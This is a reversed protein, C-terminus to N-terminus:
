GRDLDVRGDTTWRADLLVRPRRSADEAVGVDIIRGRRHISSFRHKLVLRAQTGKKVRTGGAKRRDVSKGRAQVRARQKWRQAARRAELRIWMARRKSTEGGDDRRTVQMRETGAPADAARFCLLPRLSRQLDNSDRGASWSGGGVELQRRERRGLMVEVM